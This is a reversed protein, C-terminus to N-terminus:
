ASKINIGKGPGLGTVCICRYTVAPQLAKMRASVIVGRWGLSRECLLLQVGFPEGPPLAGDQAM